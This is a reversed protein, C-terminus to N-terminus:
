IMVSLVRWQDNIATDLSGENVPRFLEEHTGTTLSLQVQPRSM